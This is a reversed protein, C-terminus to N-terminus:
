PTRYCGRHLFSVPGVMPIICFSHAWIEEGVSGFYLFSRALSSFGPLIMCTLNSTEVGFISLVVCGKGFWM